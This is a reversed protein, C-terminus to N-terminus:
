TGSRRSTDTGRWVEVIPGIVESLETFQLGTRMASARGDLWCRKPRPEAFAFDDIEAAQISGRTGSLGALLCALDYRTYRKIPAVHFIGDLHRDIIAAVTRAVDDVSSPAIIQDTAARVPGGAMTDALVSHLFSGPDPDLGYLKGMRLISHPKGMGALATEVAAKQRGYETVPDPADDERYGGRDGRFVFDSSCFIVHVNSAQLAKMWALTYTVNFARTTATDYFCCDVSAIGSCVLAHTIGPRLSHEIMEPDGRLDILLDAGPRHSSTVVARHAARWCAAVHRGVFGASGVILLTGTM